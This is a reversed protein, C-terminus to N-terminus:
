MTPSFNDTTQAGDMLQEGGGVAPQQQAQQAAAMQQQLEAQRAKQRIVAQSPVIEDVDMDLNKAVERLVAARGPLGVIQMDIPNATVQLFENRRVQATDKVQLAMAGKAVIKIDGRKLEPDDSFMLNYIYQYTLLPTLVDHDINSIVQKITKGANTIMMSLGSATRGAGGTGEGGTMYRPIGSYEDALIAFKEYVAMLEPAHTEPQFFGMPQGTAGTQDREVQWIKWPYMQTVDEGAPLRSVDVWVQPGSAIGMNNALARAAANCMDQCDAVLDPPANGWFRGPIKEFSTKFYPKHGLKHPNLAAKIVYNGILWAEVYYMKAPDPIQKEKMGWELLLRGEVAGWFQLADILKEPDVTMWVSRKEELNARASDVALWEHLGGRGYDQLVARISAEDYGDVGILETLSEKTLSHHEIFFGDNINSAHPAPYAKFPDIREWELLLEEGIEVQSTQDNYKLTSKRRVVPGKMIASPFTALDDLFESLANIFNGEQHQDEMKDEVKNIAEKSEEVIEAQLRDKIMQAAERMQQPSPQQGNMYLETVFEIAEQKAEELRDHPIDPVRTSDITWPKDTGSGLIADRLLASAGRVKTATLMMYIESGGQEKIGALKEPEYQGARQRMARLMRLEVDHKAMKAASWCNRVYSALSKIHVQAQAAEAKTRSEDDIQKLTRFSIVGNNMSQPATPTPAAQAATPPAPALGKTEITPYM